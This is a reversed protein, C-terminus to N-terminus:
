PGMLCAELEIQFVPHYEAQLPVTSCSPCNAPHIHPILVGDYTTFWMIKRKKEREPGSNRDKTIFATASSKYKSKHSTNHIYIYTNNCYMLNITPLLYLYNKTVTEGSIKHWEIGGWPGTLHYCIGGIFGSPNVPPPWLQEYPVLIKGHDRSGM